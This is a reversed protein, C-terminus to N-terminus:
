RTVPGMSDRRDAEQQKRDNAALGYWGLEAPPLARGQPAQLMADYLAPPVNVEKLYARVFADLRAQKSERVEPPLHDDDPDYPKHVGVVAGPQVVRYPAGALVYVCASFCSSGAEVIAVGKMQRLLRGIAIASVLQGGGSDLHVVMGQRRREILSQLDRPLIEGKLWTAGAVGVVEARDPAVFAALAFALLSALFRSVSMFGM